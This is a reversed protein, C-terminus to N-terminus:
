FPKDEQRLGTSPALTFALTLKDNQAFRLIQRVLLRMCSDADREQPLPYPSPSLFLTQEWFWSKM